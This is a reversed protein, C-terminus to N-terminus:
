VRQFLILVRKEKDLLTISRDQVYHMKYMELSEMFEPNTFSVKQLEDHLVTCSQVFEIYPDEDSTLKFRQLIINPSKELSARNSILFSNLFKKSLSLKPYTKVLVAFVYYEDEFVKSDSFTKLFEQRRVEWGEESIKYLGSFIKNKVELIDDM